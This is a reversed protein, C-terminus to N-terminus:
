MKLEKDDVRLSQYHLSTPTTNTHEHEITYHPKSYKTGTHQTAKSCSTTCMVSVCYCFFFFFFLVILVGVVQQKRIDWSQLSKSTQHILCCVSLVHSNEHNKHVFLHLKAPQFHQKPAAHKHKKVHHRKRDLWVYQKWLTSVLLPSNSLRWLATETREFFFFYFILHAKPKDKEERSHNNNNRSM